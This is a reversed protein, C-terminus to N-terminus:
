PSALAPQPPAATVHELLFRFAAQVSGNAVYDGFDHGGRGGHTTAAIGRQAFAALLEATQDRCPDDDNAFAAVEIDHLPREPTDLLAIAMGVGGLTALSRSSPLELALCTALFAGASYGLWAIADPRPNRTAALLEDNFARLLRARLSTSSCAGVDPVSFVLLDPASGRDGVAALWQQLVLGPLGRRNCEYEEPSIAGGWHCVLPPCSGPSGLRFYDAFLRPALATRRLEIREHHLGHV